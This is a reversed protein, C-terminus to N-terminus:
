LWILSGLAEHYSVKKMEKAESPTLPCDEVSLSLSCPLLTTLPSCSQMNFCKLLHEVYAMQSLTVDEQKNQDIWMGLILKAEGIDKIEYSLKLQQKAMTESKMTSFAGLVNDTWISTLTFENDVLKSCIQPDAWLTHYGHQKFTQDLNKAWNYTGQITGYLTKQLKWVLNSDGGEEFGRPQEMYIDFSSNSNLFTSVFDVQWLRLGQSAAIACVLWVSDLRAVLAYM